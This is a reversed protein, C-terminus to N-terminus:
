DIKQRAERLSLSDVISAYLHDLAEMHTSYYKYSEEFKDRSVKHKILISDEYVRFLLKTSDSHLGRVTTKGEAIHLDIMIATMKDPQLLDSPIKEKHQCNWLLFVTFVL